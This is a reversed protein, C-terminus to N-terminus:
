FGTPGQLPKRKRSAKLIAHTPMIEPTAARVIKIIRMPGGCATDEELETLIQKNSDELKM